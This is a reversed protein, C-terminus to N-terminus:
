HFRREFEQMQTKIETRNKKLDKVKNRIDEFNDRYKENRSSLPSNSRLETAPEDYKMKMAAANLLKQQHTLSLGKRNINILENEELDAEELLEDRPFTERKNNESSKYTGSANMSAKELNNYLNHNAATLDSLQEQLLHIKCDLSQIIQDSQSVKGELVSVNQQSNSLKESIETNEERLIALLGQVKDNETMLSKIECKFRDINTKRNKELEEILNEYFIKIEYDSRFSKLLRDNESAIKNITDKMYLNDEELKQNDNLLRQNEEVLKMGDERIKKNEALAEELQDRISGIEREKDSIEEKRRGEIEEVEKRRDGTNENRGGHGRDTKAKEEDVSARNVEQFDYKKKTSMMKPSSVSGLPTNLLSMHKSRVKGTKGRGENRMFVNVGSNLSIEGVSEELLVANKGWERCGWAWIKGSEEVACGIGDGVCLKRVNRPGLVEVPRLAEGFGATGWVFCRSDRTIAASHHGCAIDEVAELGVRAFRVGTCKHGLGLQGFHNDGTAYVSKSEGLVLTHNTGCCVKLIEEPLAVKCPLLERMLKGTGLQGESNRGMALLFNRGTQYRTLLVTHWAGCSVQTVANDSSIPVKQPTAFSSSTGLGLAGSQGAGWTYVELLSTLVCLHERGCSLSSIKLSLPFPSLCQSKSFQSLNGESDLLYTHKETSSLSHPSLSPPLTSHSIHSNFANDTFVLEM